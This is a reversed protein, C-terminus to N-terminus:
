KKPPMAIVNGSRKVQRKPKKVRELLHPSVNWKKGDETLVTVTKTNYKVLMGTLEGRGPPSFSVPEGITFAMMDAHARMSTLFKLREVIKHNLEILEEETLQDIDIQMQM